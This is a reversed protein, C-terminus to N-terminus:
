VSSIIGAVGAVDYMGLATEVRRQDSDVVTISHGEAALQETLELGVKGLGIIVIEL